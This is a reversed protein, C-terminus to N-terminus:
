NFFVKQIDFEALLSKWVEATKGKKILFSSGITNLQENIKQLSDYIFGVRADNKPLNDLIDEDFIFLPIVPFDSQLAHFLGANDELRLDRRFWFLTVKQKTM